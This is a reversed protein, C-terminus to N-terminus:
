SLGMCGIFNGYKGTREVLKNNCWPCIGQNILLQTQHVKSQINYAHIHKEQQESVNRFLLANQMEDVEAKTFVPVQYSKIVRPLQSFNCVPTKTNVKLTADDSFAIISFVKDQHVKIATCINKIHSRNQKIPNYFSYKNDYFHQIWDQSAEGGTVWGRYNKTEIVFVGYVSIVVHDIQTSIQQSKLLVDNFM